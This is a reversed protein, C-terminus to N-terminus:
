SKGNIMLQPQGTAELVDRWLPGDPDITNKTAVALATPIHVLRNHIMSIIMETKGAMAAHVANAGLRACYISDNANAPASRIIYGPDIYKLNVEMNKAKFCATIKQKLFLGIDALTANGSADKTESAAPLDQGAGEAALIVAHGRSKLRTELRALLGNEGELEFPVEPVLVFNVDNIALATHAAIFGSQRGMVKVLGIGNVADAAETHASAISIVAKSVATEFGFSKQVFSLDNDITKPVGVVAITLGRRDIERCIGLAGRQTGDGGITFLININMRELTDVIREARGGYGRSSGLITGGRRHIDTVAAPALNIPALNFESFFGRYGYRFGVINKVGYRYWLCMVIARIVDNLGPCLGGCTVIAACVDAPNFYIKQRPGAKELLRDKAFTRQAADPTTEIDYIIYESDDTYNAIYDDNVTSLKVPSPVTREGLTTVTFDTKQM